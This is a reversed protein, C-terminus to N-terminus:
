FSQKVCKSFICTIVKKNLLVFDGYRRYIIWTKTGNNVEIKYLQTSLRPFIAFLSVCAHLNLLCLCHAIDFYWVVTSVTFRERQELTEKGLICSDIRPMSITSTTSNTFAHDYSNVLGNELSTTLVEASDRKKKFTVPSVLRRSRSQVNATVPTASM